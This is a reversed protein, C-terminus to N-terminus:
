RGSQITVTDGPLGVVRKLFMVPERQGLGNRFGSDFVVVDGRELEGYFQNVLVREGAKVTPEMSASPVLNIPVVSRLVLFLLVGPGAIWLTDWLNERILKKGKPHISVQM